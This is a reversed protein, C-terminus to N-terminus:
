SGTRPALARVDRRETGGSGVRRAAGRLRPPARVQRAKELAETSLNATMQEQLEKRLRERVADVDDVEVVREVVRGGGGTGGGGGGGGGRAQLPSVCWVVEMVGGCSCGESDSSGSRKGRVELAAKLRKIEEQFERLM